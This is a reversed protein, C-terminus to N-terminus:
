QTRVVMLRLSSATTDASSVTVTGTAGAPVAFYFYSSGGPVISGSLPTGTSMTQIPLGYSGYLTQLINHWNWSQQIFQPAPLSSVDDVANSASWDTLAASLDVGFVAQLNAFGVVTGNALRFWIDGDPSSIPVAALSYRGGQPIEPRGIEARYWERASGLLTPALARERTRLRMEFAGDRTLAPPAGGLLRPASSPSQAFTATSASAVSLAPAVANSPTITYSTSGSTAQSTNVLAAYYVAGTTGGSANVSGAGLLEIGASASRVTNSMRQDALYRLWSWAAGRTSLEDNNAYPSRSSPSVLFSRYRSANGSMDENFAQVTRNRAQIAGVDLDGRPSAGSERYFLLEEAIHALGEDLWTVELEKADTNVYIKRSANILHQLEHALVPVTATDVFGVTRRNGNVVGTPDPALAYFFEGQNSTQCAFPVRTTATTPFLDRSFTFGGVYQSSGAPTLENVARTFIIGVRGNHDIDTPDGFAGADLPYILTDFKAAYRQYDASTFGGAPNLTDALILAKAGIAEVRAVHYIGNTCDENGNVNVRVLDGVSLGAPLPTDVVGVVKDSHCAAALALGVVPVLRSLRVPM